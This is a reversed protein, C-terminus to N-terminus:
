ILGLKRLKYALTTRPVGLQRAAQSLNGECNNLTRQLFMRNNKMDDSVGQSIPTSFVEIYEPLIHGEGLVFARSLVNRLERVNGPWEYNWLM